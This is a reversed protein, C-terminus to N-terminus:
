PARVVIVLRYDFQGAATVVDSAVRLAYTGALLNHAGSDLATAGTGDIKSCSGRGDIDDTVLSVMGAADTLVLTSDIGNSECTEATTGEIIEAMISMGDAPVTILFYDLDAAVQHGGTICASAGAPITNALALSDNVETESDTCPIFDVLLRYQAIVANNGTEELQFYYDGAALFVALESCSSIGSTTDTYIQMGAGNYLRVTTTMGSPCSTGSGDFMEFRVVSDAAVTIKYTDKDAV